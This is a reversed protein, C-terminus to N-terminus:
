SRDAHALEVFEPTPETTHPTSLEFRAPAEAMFRCSITWATQLILSLDGLLSRDQLYRLDYYSKDESSSEERLGHVQALGTLGPKCCLRQRQWDSYRKVRELPEPRPGVLSMDGKLVNFLQPLETFSLLRLMKETASVDSGSGRKVNFRYMRFPKAQCGCRPEAVIAKGKQMWLMLVGFILAPASVLLLLAGISIDIARKIASQLLQPQAEGLRVLPLGDLDILSPRTVYLQYMSPVVSVKIGRQKCNAVLNLMQGQEQVPSTLILEDVQQRDLLSEIQLSNLQSSPAAHLIPEVFDDGTPFLFGVVEWRMEPHKQIRQAIEQAIRGKGMVVVRHRKGAGSFQRTIARAFMRGGFAMVFFIVCFNLLILRSTAERLLFGSCAILVVLTFLGTFLQSLVAAVDYGGYFGDLKMKHFVLVWCIGASTMLFMSARFAISLEPWSLPSGTRLIFAAVSALM